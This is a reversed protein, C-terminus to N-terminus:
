RKEILVKNLFPLEDDGLIIKEVVVNADLDFVEISNVSFIETIRELQKLVTGTTIEKGFPWGKGSHGELSDFLIRLKKEIKQKLLGEDFVDSKFTLALTVNFEKYVPGQVCIPTGVIKREDLYEQVRRILERSPILKTEYGSNIPRVPVIVTCVENNTTRKKLCHARCVSPSAERALWEFDESTVARQLSKFAGAARAKLNEVTEMDAGGEAAYFNTCGSIFPIGQILGRITNKAVNGVTGGGTHYNKMMINFKGKPPNVGKSGDGFQIKGTAYDVVYHRSFPTSAYFNEVEKYRVWVKDDQKYFPEDNLDAAIKELENNSPVSGEDVYLVSDKLINKHAVFVTQGPAGTGSGLIENKYTKENKAYVSNLLINQIQPVTEFSGSLLSIRIWFLEKGFKTSREMNEPVIFDVFGSHHFNDTNDNVSLMQWKEGNFYEWRLYLNRNGKEYILNKINLNEFRNKQENHVIENLRFYLSSEGQPFKEDFGMNISPFKDEDLDFICVDANVDTDTFENLDNWAFNSYSCCYDPPLPLSDYKIRIKDIQPIQVKTSFKWMWTGNEDQIYVGGTALDKTILRIRLWYHEESNVSTISFDDPIVFSVTGKQKLNFTGDVFNNKDTLRVWDLGNWYEYIFLANKHQEIEANVESFSYAIEVNVNKNSFIEDACIYFSENYEPNDSFMKFSTNMDVAFYQANNNCICFDPSFGTGGFITRMKISKASLSKLDDPVDSLVARIWYGEVGNVVMKQIPINGHLYVVNDRERFNNISSSTELENWKKGDWFEWFVHKTFQDSEHVIDTIPEIEIQVFHENELYKFSESCIYFDHEVSNKTEFLTFPQIREDCVNESISEQFRNVCSLLKINKVKIPKETEFIIDAIDGVAAAIQTGTKISIEKNIGEVPFFTIISRASQPTVLSLGMLELLSLYTKEPVKNLRYITMETMWSFLELLTIGPDSTNHNTWEPCYRPILRLADNFIDDFTRDDLNIKPIM